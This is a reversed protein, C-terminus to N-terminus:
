FSNLVFPVAAVVAGIVLLAIANAVFYPLGMLAVGALLHVYKEQRKGYIFLGTGISGFLISLMLTTPDLSM